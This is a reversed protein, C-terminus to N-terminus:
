ARVRRRAWFTPLGLAAYVLAAIIALWVALVIALLIHLTM